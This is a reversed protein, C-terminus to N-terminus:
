TLRLSAATWLAILISRATSAPALLDADFVLLDDHEKGLEILAKGYAERTAIKQVDAM